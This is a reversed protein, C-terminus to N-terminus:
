RMTWARATGEMVPAAPMTRSREAGARASTAGTSLPVFSMFTDFVLQRSDIVAFSTFTDGNTTKWTLRLITDGVSVGAAVFAAPSGYSLVASNLLNRAEVSLQSWTRVTFQDTPQTRDIFLAQRALLQVLRTRNLADVQEFREISTVGVLPLDSEAIFRNVTENVQPYSGVPELLTSSATRENAPASVSTPPDAPCFLGFDVCFLATIQRNFLIVTLVVGTTVVAAVVLAPSTGIQEFISLPPGVLVTMSKTTTAGGNDTVTLTVTYTNMQTYIHTVTVKDPGVLNTGDGFDWRYNTISGDPDRSASANFTVEQGARASLPAMTFDATPPVNPPLITIPTNLDIAQSNGGTPKGRAKGALVLTEPQAPAKLQYSNVLTDGPKLNQKFAIPNGNILTFDSPVTDAVAAIDLAVKATLTEKVTVTDGAAVQSPVEREVSFLTNEQSQAGSIPDQRGASPQLPQPVMARWDISQSPQPIAGGHAPVGPQPTTLLLLGSVVLAIFIREVM